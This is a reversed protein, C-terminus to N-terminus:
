ADRGRKDTPGLIQRLHRVATSYFDAAGFAGPKLVLLLSEAPLALGSAAGTEIQAILRIGTIGLACAVSEATDGGTLVLGSLRVSAHVQAVVGALCEVLLRARRGTGHGPGSDCALTLVCRGDASLHERVDSVGGELDGRRIASAHSRLNPTLAVVPWGARRAHENQRLTVDSLSGAVILFPGDAPAKVVLQDPRASDRTCTRSRPERPWAAALEEALGAAGAVLPEDRLARALLRLDDQTEADVVAIGGERRLDAVAGELEQGGGRVVELPWLWVRRRTQTGLLTPLHSESVPCVPDRGFESAELLQGHVYHCGARTTRGAKPFAPVVAISPAGTQDMLADLEAGINGRFGSCIKKYLRRAGRESLFAAAARVKEYAEGPQVARSMTDLVLADAQCVDPPPRGSRPCLLAATSIGRRLFMGGVDAAGTLDDAIIGIM